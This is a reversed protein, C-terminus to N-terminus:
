SAFSMPPIPTIMDDTVAVGGGGRTVFGEPGKRARITFL